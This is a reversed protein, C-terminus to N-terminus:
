AAPVLAATPKPEDQWGNIQQTTLIFVRTCAPPEGFREVYLRTINSFGAEPDPLLGLIFYRRIFSVGASRPFTGLVLTHRAPASPVSLKLDILGGTNTIILQGVPNPGFSPREPPLVVQPEDLYALNFNIQSYFQCGSLHGSKGLSPQSQLNRGRATWVQRQEDTLRRWWSAVRGLLARVRLQAPTRPDRPIVLPRRVQGYRTRVSVSTGFKGSQPIDLIKMNTVLTARGGARDDNTRLGGPFKVTFGGVWHGILALLHDARLVMGCFTRVLFYDGKEMSLAARGAARPRENHLPRHEMAGFQPLDSVQGLWHLARKRRIM